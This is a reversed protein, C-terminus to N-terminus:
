ASAIDVNRTQRSADLDIVLTAFDVDIVQGAVRRKAEFPTRRAKLM